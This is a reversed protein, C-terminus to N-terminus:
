DNFYNVGVQLSLAVLLALAANLGLAAGALDSGTNLTAGLGVLVPAVAAPLTRPRAGEIWETVSAM